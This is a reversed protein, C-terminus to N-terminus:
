FGPLKGDEAETKTPESQEVVEGTESNVEVTLEEDGEQVDYDVDIVDGNALQAAAAEVDDVAREEDSRNVSRLFLYNDSSSNIIAKCARQIVTKAAMQDDFKQHVGDGGERYNPGQMWARKIQDITMIETHAPRNGGPEIVCYAAVIKGPKVNEIRQVHKTIVKRGREMAYEFEDGEYVVGWYINAEPFIRKVLAMSGFYSRIFMLKKGYPIFYGQKKAPNLGQVCMDFLANCISTKTCTQLVPQKDKDVTEQLILWASTLANAASYNPPLQLKGARTLEEIRSQVFDVTSAKIEALTHTQAIQQQGAKRQAQQVNSM